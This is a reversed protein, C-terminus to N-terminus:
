EKNLYIHSTRLGNFRHYEVEIIGLSKLIKLGRDVQRPSIRIEGWWEYRAKSICFRGNKKVRLKSKGNKGPLYWYIIQSLLLGAILDNVIDVYIKKFDVTDPSTKEWELFEEWDM